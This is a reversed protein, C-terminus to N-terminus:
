QPVADTASVLEVLIARQSHGPTPQGVEFSVIQGVQLDRRGVVDSVHVFYQKRDTLDRIFGFGRRGFNM